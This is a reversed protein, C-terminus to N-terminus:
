EYLLYKQRTLLFEAIGPKWSDSIQNASLGAKIQQELKKTGALRYFYNNFFDDNKKFYNYAEILYNLNISATNIISDPNTNQLNFGTCKKGNFPPYSAGTVPQPVFSFNGKKFDPHGYVQFPFKTGRGVSMITGEFLGLSPYLLVSLYNPLNPSPKVPLEYKTNHTYNACPLVMLQCQVGNALWKQGNIMLAYEAITLGHVLPVPHMGVFSSASTDLVPGDIYFGNPNPRDLVLLPIHQEACAEMVYHLTSIYTYFRVGVDQIDFVVIDINQLQAPLPKKNKGYLSVIPLGTKKDVGSSILQGADATGRFGHEPVFVKVINIGYTLMSDALHVNGILSTQNAVLVVKNNKLLEFYCETRSAGIIVSQATITNLYTILIIIFVVQLNNKTVIKTKAHLFVITILM